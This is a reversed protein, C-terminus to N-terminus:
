RSPASYVTRKRDQGLEADYWGKESIEDPLTFGPFAEKIAARTM